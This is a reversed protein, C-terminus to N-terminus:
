LGSIKGIVTVQEDTQALHYRFHLSSVGHKKM